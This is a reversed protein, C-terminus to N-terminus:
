MNVFFRFDPKKLERLSVATPRGGKVKLKMKKSYISNWWENSGFLGHTGKLGMLPRTKDLTLEQVLKVHEPDNELEVALNYILIMPYTQNETDILKQV